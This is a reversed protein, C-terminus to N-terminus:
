CKKKGGDGKRVSMNSSLGGEEEGIEIGKKEGIIEMLKM